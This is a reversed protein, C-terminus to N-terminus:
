APACAGQQGWSSDRTRGADAGDDVLRRREIITQERLSLESLSGQAMQFPNRRGAHPVIGPTPREDSLLKDM